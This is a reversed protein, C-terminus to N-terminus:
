FQIKDYTGMGGNIVNRFIISRKKFQIEDNSINGNNFNNENNEYTKKQKM